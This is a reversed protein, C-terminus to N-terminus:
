LVGMLFQLRAAWNHLKQGTCSGQGGGAKRMRSLHSRTFCYDITSNQIHVQAWLAGKSIGLNKQGPAFFQVLPVCLLVFLSCKWPPLLVPNPFTPPELACSRSLELGKRVGEM